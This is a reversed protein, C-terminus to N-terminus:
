KICESLHRYEREYVGTISTVKYMREKDFYEYTEKHYLGGIATDRKEINVIRGYEDYEQTWVYEADNSTREGEPSLFSHKTENGNEDYYYVISGIPTGDNYSQDIRELLNKDNYTHKEIHRVRGDYDITERHVIGDEGYSYTYTKMLNKSGPEDIEKVLRGKNDYERISETWKGKEHVSYSGDANYTNTFITDDEVSGDASTKIIKTLHGRDNYEYIKVINRKTDTEKYLVYNDDPIFVNKDVKNEVKGVNESNAKGDANQSKEDCSALPFIALCCLLLAFIKKM